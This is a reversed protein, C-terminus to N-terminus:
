ELFVGDMSFLDVNWVAFAPGNKLSPHSKGNVVACGNLPTTPDPRSLKFSDLPVRMFNHSEHHGGRRVAFM